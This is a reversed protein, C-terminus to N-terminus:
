IVPTQNLAFIALVRSSSELRADILTATDRCRFRSFVFPRFRSLTCLIDVWQYSSRGGVSENDSPKKRTKAGERYFLRATLPM